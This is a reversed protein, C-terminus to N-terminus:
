GKCRWKSQNFMEGVKERVCTFRFTIIPLLVPILTAERTTLRNFFIKPSTALKVKHLPMSLVWDFVYSPAIKRCCNVALLRRLHEVPIQILRKYTELIFRM